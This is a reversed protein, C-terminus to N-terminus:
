RPCPGDAGHRPGPRPLGSAMDFTADTNELDAGDEILHRAADLRFGDVGIDNLWFRAVDDIASTVVPEALNLDPMGDWFYGYYFRDGDPHWVPRGGPGSVAPREDAWVYWDDHSSGPERADLFWPHAVSTHNVVLDVIIRIGRERAAAVLARADDATGYDPEITQYDTTDYGHYSPSDSVPMLWLATVGLDGTTNPDGDNLDDLRGTLGQLDGIGDGDSDAFSRVFVEYAVAETWWPQAVAPSAAVPGACATTGTQRPSAAASPSAPASAPPAQTAVPAACGLFSLVLVIGVKARHRASMADLIAGM